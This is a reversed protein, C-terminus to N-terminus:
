LEQKIEDARDAVKEAKQEVQDAVKRAGDKAKKTAEESGQAVKNMGASIAEEAKRKAEAVADKVDQALKEGGSNVKETGEVVKEQMRAGADKIDAGAETAKVFAKDKIDQANKKTEEAANKVAEESVRFVRQATQSAKEAANEVGEQVGDAVAEAKPPETVQSSEPCFVYKLVDGINNSSLVESSFAFINRVIPINNFVTSGSGGSGAGRTILQLAAEDSLSQLVSDPIEKGIRMSVLNNIDRAIQAHPSSSSESTLALYAITRVRRDSPSLDALRAVSQAMQIEIALRGVAHVITQLDLSKVTSSPPAAAFAGGALGHTLSSYYVVDEVGKLYATDTTECVNSPSVVGKAMKITNSSKILGFGLIDWLPSAGGQKETEEVEQPAKAEADEQKKPNANADEKKNAKANEKKAIAKKVAYSEKSLPPLNVVTDYVANVILAARQTDIDTLSTAADLAESGHEQIAKLKAQELRSWDADGGSFISLSVAQVIDDVIPLRLGATLKSLDQRNNFSEVGSASIKELLHPAVSMVTPDKVFEELSEAAFASSVLLAAISLSLFLKM